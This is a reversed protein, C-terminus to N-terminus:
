PEEDLRARLLGKGLIRVSIRIEELLEWQGVVDFSVRQVM